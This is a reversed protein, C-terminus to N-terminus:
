NTKQPKDQQLKISIYIYIKLHGNIENKLSCILTGTDYLYCKVNM